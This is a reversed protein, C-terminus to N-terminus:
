SDEIHVADIGIQPQQQRLLTGMRNLCGHAFRGFLGPYFCSIYEALAKFMTTM